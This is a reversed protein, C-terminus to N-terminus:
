FYAIQVHGSVSSLPRTLHIIIFFNYLLCPGLHDLSPPLDDNTSPSINKLFIGHFLLLIWIKTHAMKRNVCIFYM